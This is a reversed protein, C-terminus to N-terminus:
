PHPQVWVQTEQWVEPVWQRVTENHGEIVRGTASDVQEPVWVESREYYGGGVKERRIEYRGQPQTVVPAPPPAIGTRPGTFRDSAIFAAAVNAIANAIAADRMSDSYEKQAKYGYYADPNM